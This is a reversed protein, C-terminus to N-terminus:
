TQTRDLKMNAVHRSIPCNAGGAGVVFRANFNNSKSDSITWIGSEYTASKVTTNQIIKTSTDSKVWNFLENDFVIRKCNFAKGSWGLMLERKKATIMRTSNVINKDSINYLRQTYDDGLRKMTKYAEFPISDGCIKDRPFTGKELMLISLNTNRLTLALSCAAPGAGVIVIDYIKLEIL